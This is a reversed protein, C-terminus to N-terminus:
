LLTALSVGRHMPQGDISQSIKPEFGERAKEIQSLKTKGIQRERGQLLKVAITM